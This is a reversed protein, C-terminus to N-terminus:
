QAFSRRAIDSVSLEFIDNKLDRMANLMDFADELKAPLERNAVVDIDLLFAGHDPIEPPVVASQVIAVLGTEPFRREFRWGYNDVANWSKPLAINITLYDEYRVLGDVQPVDIRNIYRVGMREIKRYGFIQQAIAAERKVRGSFPEWGQYPALRTWTLANNWILLADAEDDSSLRTQPRADFKANQQEFNISAGVQHSDVLHTYERKFRQVAKQRKPESAEEAYNIQILAEIIPPATYVPSSGAGTM